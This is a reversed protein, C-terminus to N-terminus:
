INTIYKLRYEPPLYNLYGGDILFTIVPKYGIKLRKAIEEVFVKKAMADEAETLRKLLPFSLNSHLLRTDYILIM